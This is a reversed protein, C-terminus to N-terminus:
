GLPHHRIGFRSSSCGRGDREGLGRIVHRRPLLSHSLVRRVAFAWALAIVPWVAVTSGLRVAPDSDFVRAITSGVVLAIAGAVVGGAVIAFFETLTHLSMKYGRTPRSGSASDSRSM